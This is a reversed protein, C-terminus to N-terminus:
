SVNLTLPPYRLERQLIRISQPINPTNGLQFHSLMVTLLIASVSSAGGQPEEWVQYDNLELVDRGGGAM